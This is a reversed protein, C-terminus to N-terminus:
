VVGYQSFFAKRWRVLTEGDEMLVAEGANVNHMGAHQLLIM